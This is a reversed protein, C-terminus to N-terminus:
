LLPCLCSSNMQFLVCRFVGKIKDFDNELQALLDVIPALEAEFRDMEEHIAANPDDQEDDNLDDAGNDAVDDMLNM